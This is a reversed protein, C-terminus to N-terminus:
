GDRSGGAVLYRPAYAFVYELLVMERDPWAQRSLNDANSDSVRFLNTNVFHILCNGPRLELFEDLRRLLFRIRVCRFHLDQQDTFVLDGSSAAFEVLNNETVGLLTPYKGSASAEAVHVFPRAPMYLGCPRDM